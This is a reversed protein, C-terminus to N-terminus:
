NRDDNWIRAANDQKEAVERIKIIYKGLKIRENPTMCRYGNYHLFNISPYDPIAYRKFKGSPITGACGILSAALVFISMGSMMRKLTVPIKKGPETTKM